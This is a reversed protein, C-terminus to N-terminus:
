IESLDSMTFPFVNSWRGNAYYGAFKSKTVQACIICISIHHSDNLVILSLSIRTGQCMGGAPLHVPCVPHCCCHGPKSARHGRCGPGREQGEASVHSCRQGSSQGSEDPHGVVVPPLTSFRMLFMIDRCLRDM